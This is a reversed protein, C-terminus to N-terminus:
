PEASGLVADLFDRLAARCRPMDKVYSGGHGADPVEVLTKPGGCADYIRHAMECPVLPDASGHLLLIPLKTNRVADVASSQYLSFGAFLNTFINLFGVTLGPPLHFRTKAVQRIIDSGATFGSDAIVGCVNAPFELESALLVTTAGMSMGDLIM